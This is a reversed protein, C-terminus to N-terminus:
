YDNDRLISQLLEVLVPMGCITKNIMGYDDNVVYSYSDDVGKYGIIFIDKVMMEWMPEGTEDDRTQRLSVGQPPQIRHEVFGVMLDELAAMQHEDYCDFDPEKNPDYKSTQSRQYDSDKAAMADIDVTETELEAPKPYTVLM